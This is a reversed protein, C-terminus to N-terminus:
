AHCMFVGSRSQSALIFVFTSRVTSAYLRISLHMAIEIGPTEGATEGLKTQERREWETSKMKKDSARLSRRNVWLIRRVRQRGRDELINFGHCSSKSLYDRTVKLPSEISLATISNRLYSPLLTGPNTLSLMDQRVAMITTHNM